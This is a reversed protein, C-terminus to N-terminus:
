QESLKKEDAASYNVVFRGAASDPPASGEDYYEDLPTVRVGCENFIGPLGSDAPIDMLFHLGANEESISDEGCSRVALALTLERIRRYYKRMRSIHREFHGSEIFRALTYQEFAPVPCSCFGLREKWREYLEQPLCVYSIRVSPAITMSFTNMYIVRGSADMGFMTPLPKGGWRFESDYDDEIIYRGPKGAAWRLLELRRAVPMVTGLPFHHSPTLYVVSADSEALVDARLGSKDLPIPRLAASNQTVIQALKRYGPNEVAYVHGHGLLQILLGILYELGAGVVINEPSVAIGRFDHLYHAIEQRLQLVGRPDTAELLRASYESLVRRSLHAWTSFPFCGNDVINTKFDYDYRENRPYKGVTRHVAETHVSPPPTIQEQVFYGRRPASVIYGEAALQGYATEVTIQSIRLNAALQRKSPLRTGGALAGSMIDARVARYLQEYLPVGSQADLHYTLM